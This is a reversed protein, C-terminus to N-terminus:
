ETLDLLDAKLAPGVESVIMGHCASTRCALTRRALGEGQRIIVECNACDGNWCYKGSAVADTNVFQICRLLTNNDPVLVRSGCIEIEILSDFRRFVGDAWSPSTM